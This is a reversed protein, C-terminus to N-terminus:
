KCAFQLQPPSNSTYFPTSTISIFEKVHLWNMNAIAFLCCVAVQASRSHLNAADNLECWWHDGNNCKQLPELVELLIVFNSLSMHCFINDNCVNCRKWFCLHQIREFVSLQLLESKCDQSHLLYLGCLIRIGHWCQTFIIGYLPSFLM